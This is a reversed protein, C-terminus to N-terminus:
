IYENDVLTEMCIYAIVLFIGQLVTGYSTLEGAADVTGNIKSLLNVFSKSQILLFLIFLLIYIKLDM